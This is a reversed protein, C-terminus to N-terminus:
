FLINAAIVIGRFTDKGSSHGAALVKALAPFDISKESEFLSVVLSILPIAFRGESACKLYKRSVDSTRNESIEYTAQAFDRAYKANANKLYEVVATIGLIADDASPTLGSGLGLTKQLLTKYTQANNHALAQAIENVLADARDPLKHHLDVIDFRKLIEEREAPFTKKPFFNEQNQANIIEIKEGGLILNSKVFFAEDKARVNISNFDASQLVVCDPVGVSLDSHLTILTDGFDINLSHKFVSHVRGKRAPVDTFKKTLSTQIAEM